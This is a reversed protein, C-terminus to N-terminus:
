PIGADGPRGSGPSTPRSLVERAIHPEVYRWSQPPEVGMGRLEELQVPDTARVVRHLVLGFADQSGSFYEHFESETVGAGGQHARWLEAPTGQIVDALYAWGVVAKIPSSSYLLVASGSDLNPRTRRLEVTKSGGLIANVFRPRISILLTRDSRHIESRSTHATV